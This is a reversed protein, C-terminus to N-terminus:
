YFHQQKEQNGFRILIKIM